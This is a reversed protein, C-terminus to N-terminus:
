EVMHIVITFTGDFVDPLQDEIIQQSVWEEYDIPRIGSQFEIKVNPYEEKFLAIAEEIQQYSNGNPVDWISGAFVGLKLTKSKKLPFILMVCILVLLVIGGFRLKKEM